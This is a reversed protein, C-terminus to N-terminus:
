YNSEIIKITQRMAYCDLEFANYSEIHGNEFETPLFESTGVINSIETDVSAFVASGFDLLVVRGTADDFAINLPKIDLHAIGHNHLFDVALPLQQVTLDIQKRTTPKRTSWSFLDEFVFTKKFVMLIFKEDSASPEDYECVIEAMVKVAFNNREGRLGSSNLITLMYYEHSSVAIKKVIIRCGDSKSYGIQVSRSALREFGVAEPIM